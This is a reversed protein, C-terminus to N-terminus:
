MRRRKKQPPTNDMLFTEENKQVNSYEDMVGQLHIFVIRTGDKWQCPHSVFQRACEFPLKFTFTTQVRDIVKERREKLASRFAGKLLVRTEPDRVFRNHVSAIDEMETLQRPWDMLIDLHKGDNSVAITENSVGSPALFHVFVSKRETEVDSTIAQVM